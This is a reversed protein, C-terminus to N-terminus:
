PIKRVVKVMELLLDTVKRKTTEEVTYYKGHFNGPSISETRQSTYCASISRFLEQLNSNTIVGTEKFVRTLLALVPVTVSTNIKPVSEVRTVTEKKQGAQRALLEHEIWTVLYDRVAPRQTYLAKEGEFPLQYFYSRVHELWERKEADTQLGSLQEGFIGFCFQLFASSNFNKVICYAALPSVPSFPERGSVERISLEQLFGNLYSLQEFPIPGDVFRRLESLLIDRLIEETQSPQLSRVLQAEAQQVAKRFLELLPKPAYANRDVHKPFYEQIFRLCQQLDAMVATYLDLLQRGNEIQHLYRDVTNLLFCLLAQYGSILISFQEENRQHIAERMLRDMFENREKGSKELYSSINSSGPAENLLRAPLIENRIFNHWIDNKVIQM